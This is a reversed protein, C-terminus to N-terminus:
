SKFECGSFLCHLAISNYVRREVWQAIRAASLLTARVLIYVSSFTVYLARVVM